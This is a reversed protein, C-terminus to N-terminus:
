TYEKIEGLLNMVFRKKENWIRCYEPGGLGKQELAKYIHGIKNLYKVSLNKQNFKIADLFVISVDDLDFAIPFALANTYIEHFILKFFYKIGLKINDTDKCEFYRSEILRYDNMLVEFDVAKNWEGPITKNRSYRRLSLRFKVYLVIQRGNLISDAAVFFLKIIILDKLSIRKDNKLADDETPFIWKISKIM